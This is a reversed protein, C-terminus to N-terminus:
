FIGDAILPFENFIHQELRLFVGRVLNVPLSALAILSRICIRFDANHRYTHVLGFNQVSRWISQAFHFWCYNIESEPWVIHFANQAALEFDLFDPM